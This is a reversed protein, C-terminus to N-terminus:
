PRVITAMSSRGQGRVQHEITQLLSEVEVQLQLLQLHQALAYPSGPATTAPSAVAEQTTAISASRDSM